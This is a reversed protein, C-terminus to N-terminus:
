VSKAGVTQGVVLVFASGMKPIPGCRHQGYERQFGHPLDPSQRILTSTVTEVTKGTKVTKVTEVPKEINVTTVTKVTKVTKITKGTM